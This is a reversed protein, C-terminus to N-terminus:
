KYWRENGIMKAGCRPCFNFTKPVYNDPSKITIGCKKCEAVGSSWPFHWESEEPFMVGHSILYNAILDDSPSVLYEKYITKLMEILKEKDSM